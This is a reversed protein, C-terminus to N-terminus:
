GQDAKRSITDQTALGGLWDLAEYCLSVTQTDADFRADAAGCSTAKFTVPRPLAFSSAVDNAIREMMGDSKLWDAIVAYDEGPDDFEVSIKAGKDGFHPLLLSVLYNQVEANADVCASVTQKDLQFAAAVDAFGQTDSGIMQCALEYVRKQDIGHSSLFNPQPPNQQSLALSWGHTADKLTQEAIAQDEALLAWVAIQSAIRDEDGDLELKLESTLLHGVEHYLIFEANHLTFQRIGDWEQQTLDQASAINPWCLLASGFAALAIHRFM